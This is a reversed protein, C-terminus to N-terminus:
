LEGAEVPKVFGAPVGHACLRAAAGGAAGGSMGGSLRQGFFLLWLLCGQPRQGPGRQARAPSRLAVASSFGVSWWSWFVLLQKRLLRQLWCRKGM